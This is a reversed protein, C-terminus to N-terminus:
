EKGPVGFQAIISKGHLTIIHRKLNESRNFTRGCYTCCFPKEGTHIRIHKRLNQRLRFSKECYPCGFGGGKVEKDTVLIKQKWDGTQPSRFQSPM